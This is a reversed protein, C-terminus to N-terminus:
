EVKFSPDFGPASCMLIPSHASSEKEVVHKMDIPVDEMFKKGLIKEVIRVAIVDFRDARLTKLIM